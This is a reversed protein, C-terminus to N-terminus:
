DLRVWRDPNPTTDLLWLSPGRPDYGLGGNQASAPARWLAGIWRPTEAGPDVVIMANSPSTTRFYLVDAETTDDVWVDGSDASLSGAYLVVPTQTPQALQDRRLRFISPHWISGPSQTEDYGGAIRGNLYLYTADAAIGNVDVITANSGIAVPAGGTAPITYYTTPDCCGDRTMPAQSSTRHTTAVIFQTGDWTIAGLPAAPYRFDEPPADLAVPTALFAGTADTVRFVRPANTATNNTTIVYLGEPRAVAGGGVTTTTAGTIMTQTVVGGSTSLRQIRGSLGARFVDDDMVAMWGGTLVSVGSALEVPYTTEIGRPGDYPIEDVTIQTVGSSSSLAICVERGVEGFVPLGPTGVTTEDQASCRLVEGSARDVVAGTTPGNTRVVALGQAPTYRFWTVGGTELCAPVYARWPRNASVVNTGATLPIATACSDGPQPEFETIEVTAQPMLPWNANPDSSTTGTPLAFRRQSVLWAALPGAPGDFTWERELPTQDVLECALVEAVGPNCGRVLEFGLRATPDGTTVRVNLLSTATQKEYTIVADQGRAGDPSCALAGLPGEPLAGRDPSIAYGAPLTWRHPAGDRTPATYMAGANTADLPAECSEGARVTPVEEVRVTAGDFTNAGDRAVWVFYDGPGVDLWTEWSRRGTFCRARSADAYAPETRCDNALVDVDLWHTSTAPTVVIHLASGGADSAATSKRYRVLVDPGHGDLDCPASGDASTAGAPIVWEVFGAGSSTAEENTLANGCGEGTPPALTFNAIGDGLYAHAADVLTGGADRFARLDLGYARGAQLGPSTLTLVTDGSSWTGSLTTTTGDGTLPATTTSTDMAESFVVVISLLGGPATSAEEPSTFAVFPVFLDSGTTFDLAGDVLYTAGDLANGARDRLGSMTVRHPAASTLRGAVDLVARRGGRDWVVELETATAGVELAFAGAGEDMPESFTIAVRSVLGVDVDLQAERPTSEIVVPARTDAGTAFDLRGDDGLASTDLPNGAVDEFGDLVLEYSSSPELGSVTWRAVRDTWSVASLTPEGPGELRARGAAVRMPESTEVEITALAADVGTAGEAPATRVITPAVADDTEFEFSHAPALSNGAEDRFTSGVTVTITTGTPLADVPMFTVVTREDNWAGDGLDIAGDDSAAGIAGGSVDMPESFAIAITTDTRVGSAGHSPTTAIVAPPTVDGADTDGNSADEIPGADPTIPADDDGCGAFALAAIVLALSIRQLVTKKM